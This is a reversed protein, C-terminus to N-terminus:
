NDPMTNLHDELADLRTAWLRRYPHLWDDLPRLPTPELRYWRQQAQGRVTVLGSRRLVGLHKSVTPQSLEFRAGIAGAPQDAELLLDLIRRRHQEALVGFLEQQADSM